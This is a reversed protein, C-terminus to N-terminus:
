HERTRNTPTLFAGLADMIASLHQSNINKPKMKYIDVNMGKAVCFQKSSFSSKGCSCHENNVVIGGVTFSTSTSVIM